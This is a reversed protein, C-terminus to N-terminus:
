KKRGSGLPRLVVFARNRVVMLPQGRGKKNKIDAMM